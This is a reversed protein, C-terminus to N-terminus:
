EGTRRANRALIDAVTPALASALRNVIDPAGGVVAETIGGLVVGGVVTGSAKLEKEFTKAGKTIASATLTLAGSVDISDKVGAAVQKGGATGTALGAAEKIKDISVGAGLEAALEAVVADRMEGAKIQALIRAKLADRDILSFDLGADYAQVTEKAWAQMAGIGQAKVDDPILAITDKWDESHKTLEEGGRVAIAALRRYHEDLNGESTALEPALDGLSFSPKLQASIMSEIESFADDTSVTMDKLSDKYDNSMQTFQDRLRTTAIEKNVSNGPGFELEIKALGKYFESVNGQITSDDFGTSVGQSVISSMGAQRASLYAKDLGTLAGRAIRASQAMSILGDGGRRAAAALALSQQVANAEAQAVNLITGVLRRAEQEQKTMAFAADRNAAAAARVAKEHATMAGVNLATNLLLLQARQAAITATLETVMAVRQREAEATKGVWGIYNALAVENNKIASTQQSIANNSIAAQVSSLVNAVGTQLDVTAPSLAKGLETRLGSWAVALRTSATATEDMADGVQAVLRPTAEATAYLIALSTEESTLADVSKGLKDALKQNAEGLKLVIGTNDILRPSARKVGSVLSDLMFQADGYAPNLAAAARAGEILTPLLRAMETSLTGTTGALALNAARMLATSGITGDAARKYEDLITASQGAAAMVNRFAKETTIAVSGINGLAYATQAIKVASFSVGLLGVIGTLSTLNSNASAVNKGLGDFKQGTNTLEQQVKKLAPSANDTMTVSSKLDYDSM